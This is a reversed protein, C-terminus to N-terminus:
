FFHVCLTMFVLSSVQARELLTKWNRFKNERYQEDGIFDDEAQAYSCLRDYQEDTILKIGQEYRAMIERNQISWLRFNDAFADVVGLQYPNNHEPLRPPLRPVGEESVGKDKAAKIYDNETLQKQIGKLTDEPELGEGKSIYVLHDYSMESYRNLSKMNYTAM